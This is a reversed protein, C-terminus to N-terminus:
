GVLRISCFTTPWSSFWLRLSPRTQSFSMILRCNWYERPAVCPYHKSGNIFSAKRIPSPNLRLTPLPPIGFVTKLCQLLLASTTIVLLTSQLWSPIWPTYWDFNKHIGTRGPSCVDQFGACHSKVLPGADLYRGCHCPPLLPSWVPGWGRCSNLSLTLLLRCPRGTSIAMFDVGEVSQKVLISLSGPRVNDFGRGM